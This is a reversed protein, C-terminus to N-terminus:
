AKELSKIDRRLVFSFAILVLGEIIAFIGILVVVTTAVDTSGSEEPRALLYLGFGVAIIAFIIMLWKGTMGKPMKFGAALALFGTLIFWIGLIVLVVRTTADPWILAALGAIIAVWGLTLQIWRDEDEAKAEHAHYLQALGWIVAFVGFAVLIVRLTIDPWAVLIIGLVIIGIGQLLVSWPSHAPIYVEEIVDPEM